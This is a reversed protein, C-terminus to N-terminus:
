KRLAPHIGRHKAVINRRSVMSCCVNDEVCALCRLTNIDKRAPNKAVICSKDLAKCKRCRRNRAVACGNQNIRHSKLHDAVRRLPFVKLCRQCRRCGDGAPITNAEIDASAVQLGSMSPLPELNSLDASRSRFSPSTPDFVSGSDDGKNFLVSPSESSNLSDSSRRVSDVAAKTGRDFNIPIPTGPSEMEIIKCTFALTLLVIRYSQSAESGYAPTPTM